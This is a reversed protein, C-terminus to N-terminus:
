MGAYQSANQKSKHTDAHEGQTQTKQLAEMALQFSLRQTSFLLNVLKQFICAYMYISAAM